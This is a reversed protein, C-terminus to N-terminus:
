YVCPIGYPAGASVSVAGGAGGNNSSSASPAPSTAPTRSSSSIGAPVSTVDPGLILEVHGAAVSSSATPTVGRFYGAIKAASNQGGTGYAVQTSSHAAANGVEGAKFGATTLAQSTDRALGSATGGNLVDVTTQGPALEPATPAPTPSVTPPYFEDQVFTKVTAPDILNVTQGAEEGDTTIVPATKFTLNKGTLSKM